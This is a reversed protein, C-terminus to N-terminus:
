LKSEVYCFAGVGCANKNQCPNVCKGNNCIRDSACDEHHYCEYQPPLERVYSCEVYPNGEYKPPCSCIGKHNQSVCQANIGCLEIKCALVCNGNRCVDTNPCDNNNTCAPQDSIIPRCNGNSDSVTDPPCKCVMTRLPITDLVTCTQDRSCINRQEACPNQCTGSICALKSPCDIDNVCEPRPLTKEEM